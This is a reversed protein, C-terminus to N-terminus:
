AVVQILGYQWVSERGSENGDQEALSKALPSEGWQVEREDIIEQALARLARLQVALASDGRLEDAEPMWEDLITQLQTLWNWMGDVICELNSAPAFSGGLARILSQEVAM